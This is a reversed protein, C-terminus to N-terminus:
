GGPQTKVTTYTVTIAGTSLGVAMVILFTALLSLGLLKMFEAIM